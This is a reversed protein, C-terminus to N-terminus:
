VKLSGLTFRPPQWVSPSIRIPTGSNITIIFVGKVPRYTLLLPPQQPLLISFPCRTCNCFPNCVSRDPKDKGAKSVEIKIYSNIIDKDKCPDFGTFIMLVTMFIAFLKM